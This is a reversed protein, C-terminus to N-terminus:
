NDVTIKNKGQSARLGSVVDWTATKSNHDAHEHAQADHSGHDHQDDAVIAAAGVAVVDNHKNATQM